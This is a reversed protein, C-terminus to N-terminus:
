ALEAAAIKLGSPQLSRHKDHIHGPAPGPMKCAQQMEGRVEKADMVIFTAPPAAGPERSGWRQGAASGLLAGGGGARLQARGGLGRQHRAGAYGM